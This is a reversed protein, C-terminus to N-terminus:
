SQLGYFGGNQTFFNNNYNNNDNMIESCFLKSKTSYLVTIYLTIIILISYLYLSNVCAFGMLSLLLLSKKTGSTIIMLGRRKGRDTKSSIIMLKVEGLKKNNNDNM